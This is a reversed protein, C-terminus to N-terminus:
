PSEANLVFQILLADLKILLVFYQLYAIRNLRFFHQTLIVQGPIEQRTFDGNILQFPSRLDSERSGRRKNAHHLIFGKFGQPANCLIHLFPKDSTDIIAFLNECKAHTFFSAPVNTSQVILNIVDM